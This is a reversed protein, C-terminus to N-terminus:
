RTRMQIGRAVSSGEEKLEITHVMAASNENEKEEARRAPPEKTKAGNTQAIEKVATTSSRANPLQSAVTHAAAVGAKTPTVMANEEGAEATYAM